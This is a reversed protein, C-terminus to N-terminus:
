PGRLIVQSGWTVGLVGSNLLLLDKGVVVVVVITSFGQADNTLLVRVAEGGALFILKPPWLSYLSSM